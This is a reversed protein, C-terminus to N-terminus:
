GEPFVCMKIEDEYITERNESVDYTGLVYTAVVLYPWTIEGWYESCMETSCM